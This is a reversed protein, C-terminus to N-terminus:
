IKNLPKLLEHLHKKAEANASISAQNHLRSKQETFFSILGQEINGSDGKLINILEPIRLELQRLRQFNVAANNQNVLNLYKVQILGVDGIKYFASAYGGKGGLQGRLKGYEKWSLTFNKRYKLLLILIEADTSDFYPVYNRGTNNKKMALYPGKAKFIAQVIQNIKNTDEASDVTNLIDRDISYALSFPNKKSHGFRSLVMNSSIDENLVTIEQESNQIVFLTKIKQGTLRERIDLLLNHGELLLNIIDNSSFIETNLQGKIM